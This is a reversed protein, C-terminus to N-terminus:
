RPMFGEKVTTGMPRSRYIMEDYCSNPTYYYSNKEGASTYVTVGDLDIETVESQEFPIPTVYYNETLHHKVFVMNDMFYNDIWSFFNIFIVAFIGALIVSKKEAMIHINEGIMCLPLLLMFALGYRIFPANAFWLILNLLLTAYFVVMSLRIKKTLLRKVFTFILLALGLLQSYVLMEEYHEKEEWWIPLWEKIPASLKDVDYLCRGWVTIQASDHQMYEVPVKWAVNFLDIAAVPYVLWGSIIVNRILFPAICIMGLLLYYVIEKWMKNKILLILPYITLAVMAAASLKMSVAFAALVALRGAIAIKEKDHARGRETSFFSCWECLIYLVFFMTGYDTAPSQLGVMETLAYILIAGRAFFDVYSERGKKVEFLGKAAYCSFVAMFFGTVTHLAFPLIFSLTFLACFALYSSNYAFHLQLNAIGKVVGYEEIIRIAQAHYIGTDTHFKGRSAFFAAALIILVYVLGRPKILFENKLQTLYKIIDQWCFFLGFAFAVLMIIHCVAGVKYFISFIEAYVTLAVFGTVVAGTIGLKEPSMVPILRSLAKKTLSGIVLCVALMYAFSILVVIM